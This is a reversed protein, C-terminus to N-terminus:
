ARGGQDGNIWAVVDERWYRVRGGPKRWKPGTSASRWNALTSVSVSLMAAVDDPTMLNPVRVDEDM